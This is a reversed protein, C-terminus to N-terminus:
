VEVGEEPNKMAEELTVKVKTLFVANKYSTVRLQYRISTESSHKVEM